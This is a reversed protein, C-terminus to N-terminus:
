TFIHLVQAESLYEQGIAEPFDALDGGAEFGTVMYMRGELEFSDIVGLM